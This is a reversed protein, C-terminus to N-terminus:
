KHSKSFVIFVRVEQFIAVVTHWARPPCWYVGKALEDRREPAVARSVEDVFARFTGQVERLLALHSPENCLLANLGVVPDSEFRRPALFGDDTSVCHQLFYQSTPWVGSACAAVGQEGIGRYMNVLDKNNQRRRAM